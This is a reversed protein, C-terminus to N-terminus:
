LTPETSNPVSPYVRVTHLTDACAELLLRSGEVSFLDMYRFRLGGFLTIMDRFVTESTFHTLKLQGRLSPASFPVALEFGPNPPPSGFKMTPYYEIEIDDLNPFLGLFYLLEMQTGSSIVLSISRITRALHGFYREVDPIFKSLDFREIRLKQINSLTTFYRLTQRDFKRPSLWPEFSSSRVLLTRAFPLLEMKHLKALPKLEARSADLPRDELTVTRHLHPVAALYWSYCTLSFDKLCPIDDGIDAVIVELVDQPLNATRISHNENVLTELNSRAVKPQNSWAKNPFWTTHSLTGFGVASALNSIRKPDLKQLHKRTSPPRISKTVQPMYHYSSSLQPACGHGFLAGPGLRRGCAGVGTGEIM